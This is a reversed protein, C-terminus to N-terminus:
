AGIEPSWTPTTIRNVRPTTGIDLAKAQVIFSVAVLKNDGFASTPYCFGHSLSPQEIM